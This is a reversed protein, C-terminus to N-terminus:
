SIKPGKTTLYLNIKKAKGFSTEYCITNGIDKQECEVPKNVEGARAEECIGYGILSPVDSTMKATQSDNYQFSLDVPIVLFSFMIYLSM